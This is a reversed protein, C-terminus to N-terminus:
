KNDIKHWYKNCKTLVYNNIEEKLFFDKQSIRITNFDFNKRQNFLSCQKIAKLWFKDKILLNFHSNIKKFYKLPASKIQYNKFFLIKSNDSYNSWSNLFNNYYAIFKQQNDIEIFDNM